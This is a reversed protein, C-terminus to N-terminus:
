SSGRRHPSREIHAARCWSRAMQVRSELRYQGGVHLDVDCGVLRWGTAGYWRVILEPRTFADFVMRRPADFERALVIERDSPTTLVLERTM